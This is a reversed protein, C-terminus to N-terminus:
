LGGQANLLTLLSFYGSKALYMDYRPDTFHYPANAKIDALKKNITENSM